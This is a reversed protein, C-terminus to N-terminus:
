SRGELAAASRLAAGYRDRMMSKWAEDSSDWEEGYLEACFREVLGEDVVPAPPSQPAPRAYLPAIYYDGTEYFNEAQTVADDESTEAICMFRGDNLYVGYVVAETEGVEKATDPSRQAKQVSTEPQSSIAVMAHWINIVVAREDENSLDVSLGAAIMDETPDSPLRVGERDLSQLARLAQLESVLTQVDAYYTASVPMDDSLCDAEESGSWVMIEALREDSIAQLQEKSLPNTM